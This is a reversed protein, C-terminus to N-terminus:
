KYQSVISESVIGFTAWTVYTSIDTRFAFSFSSNTKNYLQLWGMDASEGWWGNSIRQHQFTAFYKDSKYPIMLTVTHNMANTTTTEIGFQECWGDSYIRYTYTDSIFSKIIYPKEVPDSNGQSALPVETNDMFAHVAMNGDNDAMYKLNLKANSTASPTTNYVVSNGLQALISDKDVYFPVNTSSNPAYGLLYPKGDKKEYKLSIRDGSDNYIYRNASKSSLPVEESYRIVSDGKKRVSVKVVAINDGGVSQEKVKQVTYEWPTSNDGLVSGMSKWGTIESNYGGYGKAQLIEKELGAVNAAEMSSKAASMTAFSGSYVASLGVGLLGVIFTALIVPLMVFGDRKRKLEKSLDM